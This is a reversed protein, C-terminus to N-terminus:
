KKCEHKERKLNGNALPYDWEMIENGNKDEYVSLNFVKIIELYPNHGVMIYQPYKSWKNSLDKAKPDELGKENITKMLNRYLDSQYHTFVPVQGGFFEKKRKGGLSYNSLYVKESFSLIERKYIDKAMEIIDKFDKRISIVDVIKKKIGSRKLCKNENQTHCGWQVLWAIKMGALKKTARHM